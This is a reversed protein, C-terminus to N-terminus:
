LHKGRGCGPCIWDEPLDDFAIGPPVSHEPDGVTPDYIWGCDRTPCDIPGTGHDRALARSAAAALTALALFASRRSLAPM